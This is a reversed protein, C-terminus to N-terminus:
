NFLNNNLNTKKVGFIDNDDDFLNKTKPKEENFNFLDNMVNKNNDPIIPILYPAQFSPNIAATKIKM